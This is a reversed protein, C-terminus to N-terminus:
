SYLYFLFGAGTIIGYIAFPALLFAFVIFYETILLTTFKAIVIEYPKLPLPLVYEVDKSFYFLNMSSILTQVILLIAVGLLSVGLFVAPQGIENLMTIMGYSMGGFIGVFYLVLAIIGIVTLIKRSVKNTKQNSTEKNRISTKLFVKTLQWIRNM